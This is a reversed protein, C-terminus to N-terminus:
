VGNGVLKQGLPTTVSVLRVGDIVKGGMGDPVLIIKMGNELEVYSWVGMGKSEYKEPIVGIFKKIRGLDMELVTILKTKEAMTTDSRSENPSPAEKRARRADMLAKELVEREREFNERIIKLWDKQM